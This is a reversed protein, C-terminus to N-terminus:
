YDDRIDNIDQLKKQIEFLVPKKDEPVVLSINELYTSVESLYESEESSRQTLYEITDTVDEAVNHFYDKDRFSLTRFDAGNRIDALYMRLKYLPGAIRHTILLSFGFVIGLYALQVIFLLTFLKTKIASFKSAFEKNLSIFQNFLDNLAIFYISSGILVLSCIIFCLRMQFTKDVILINRNYAM